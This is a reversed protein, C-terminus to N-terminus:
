RTIENKEKEPNEPQNNQMLLPIGIAPLLISFYVLSLIISLITEIFANYEDYASFAFHFQTDAALFLIFLGFFGVILCRRAINTFIETSVNNFVPFLILSCFPLALYALAMGGWACVRLPHTPNNLLEVGALIGNSVAIVGIVMCLPLFMLWSNGQQKRGLILHIVSILSLTFIVAPILFLLFTLNSTWTQLPQISSAIREIVSLLVLALIHFYFGFFVAVPLILLFNGSPNKMIEKFVMVM